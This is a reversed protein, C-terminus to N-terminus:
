QVEFVDSSVIYQDTVNVLLVTYIGNGYKGQKINRIVNNWDTNANDINSYHLNLCEIHATSNIAIIAAEFPTYTM